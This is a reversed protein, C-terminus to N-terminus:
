LKGVNAHNEVKTVNTSVGAQALMEIIPSPELVEPPIVGRQKIKKTALMTVFTAPVIGTLFSTANAKYRSFAEKHSISTSVKYTVDTKDVLGKVEVTLGAYGTIHGAVSAPMPFLSVLLDFPAIESGKVKRRRKDLLGIEKLMKLMAIFEDSLALKFDVYRVGKGIYKPLTEVEEHAVSYVARSGIPPPFDYVEKGSLPLLTKTKGNVYVLSPLFVEELVVEPSFLPVFSYKKSLSYEGDRVKIEHVTDLQDAAYRAYINSLGPDEGMGAIALLGADKWAKDQSLQYDLEYSALDVYHAGAGLCTKMLSNNFRPHGSNVVVDAGRVADRLQQENTADLEVAEAREGMSKALKIARSVNMDALMVSEISRSEELLRQAIVSGVSGVGIILAKM